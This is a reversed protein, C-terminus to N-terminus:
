GNALGNTFSKTTESSSGPSTSIGNLSNKLDDANFNPKDVKSRDIAGGLFADTVGGAADYITFDGFNLILSGVEAPDPIANIFSIVDAIAYILGADVYGTAAALDLLTYPEGALDSIVPIPATLVDILPQLPETFQKVQEVIPSLFDSIFTGLDIGVDQFEVLKLGDALADGIDDFGVLVGADRDGISWELVFDGVIKPFVTDAGPVLDSNLQLEMGIDVNAEAAVGIDIEIDGLDAIAIRSGGNKNRVDVGFTAGLGTLTNGDADVNTDADLQLFALKGTLGAGTLDVDLNVELENTDSVDI